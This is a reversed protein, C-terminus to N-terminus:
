RTPAAVGAPQGRGAPFPEGDLSREAGAKAVLARSTADGRRAAVHVSRGRATRTGEARLREALGAESCGEAAVAPRGRPRPGRGAGRLRVEIEEVVPPNQLVVAVTEGPEIREGYVWWSRWRGPEQGLRSWARLRLRVWDVPSDSRNTIVACIAARDPIGDFHTSYAGRYHELTLGPGACATSLLLLPLVARRM